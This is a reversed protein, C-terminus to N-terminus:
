KVKVKRITNEAPDSIIEYRICSDKVLHDYVEVNGPYHSYDNTDFPILDCNQLHNITRSEYIVQYASFDMCFENFYRQLFVNNANLPLLRHNVDDHDDDDTTYYIIRVRVDSLQVMYPLLTFACVCMCVGVLWWVEVGYDISLFRFVHCQM